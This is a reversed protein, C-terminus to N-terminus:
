LPCEPKEFFGSHGRQGAWSYRGCAWIALCIMCSYLSSVEPVQGVRIRNLEFITDLESGTDSLFLRFFVADVSHFEDVLPGGGRPVFANFPVAATGPFQYGRLDISATHFDTEGALIVLLIAPTTPGSFSTVDLVIANNQGGETLDQRTDFRYSFGFRMLAGLSNPADFDTLQCTLHSPNSLNSDLQAVPPAEGFVLFTRRASLDGVDETVVFEGEMLPTVVEAPDDFDDLVIEAFAPVPMLLAAALFAAFLQPLALFAVAYRRVM